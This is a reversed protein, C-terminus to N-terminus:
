ATLAALTPKLRELAEELRRCEDHVGSLDADLGMRELRMASEVASSGPFNGVSGALTHASRALAPADGRAAADQVEKLLAPYSQLFVGAVRRALAADGDLRELLAASLDPVFPAPADAPMGDAAAAIREVVAFLDAEMIPKAVYDDM